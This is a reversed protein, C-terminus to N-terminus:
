YDKGVKERLYKKRVSKLHIKTYLHTVGKVYMNCIYKRNQKGKIM